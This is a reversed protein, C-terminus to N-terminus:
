PLEGQMGCVQRGPPQARLHPVHLAHPEERAQQQQVHALLVARHVRGLGYFDRAGQRAGPPSRACTPYTCPMPNM